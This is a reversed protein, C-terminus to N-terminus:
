RGTKQLWRMLFDRPCVLLGNKARTLAVYVINLDEMSNIDTDVVVVYDYELGKAQHVTSVKCYSLELIARVEKNTRCLVQPEHAMIDAITDMPNRDSAEFDVQEGDISWVQGGMDILDVFGEKNGRVCKVDCPRYDINKLIFFTGDDYYLMKKRIDEYVTNAYNIICQYSRYNYALEYGKFSEDVKNFIEGDAGRFVFISQRNDGCFFKKKTVVLNFLRFQTDDVDQFEDVFLADINYIKEQYYNMIDLLYLPYDTFDYLTNKRKYDKYRKELAIFRNKLGLTINMNQNGNIFNYLIDINITNPGIRRGIRYDEVLDRLIRKIDNEELIKVTFGYKDAFYYLLTRCWVHITSVEVDYVGMTMLRNQMEARAARTYTIACIHDKPNRKRYDIVAAIISTTKGSGAPARLLVNDDGANVIADYQSDDLGDLYDDKIDNVKKSVLTNRELLDEM